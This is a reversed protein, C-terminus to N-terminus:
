FPSVTVLPSKNRELHLFSCYIEKLVGVQPACFALGSNGEKHMLQVKESNCKRHM